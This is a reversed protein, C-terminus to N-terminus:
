DALPLDQGTLPRDMAQAGQHSGQVMIGVHSGRQCKVRVNGVVQLAAGASRGAM